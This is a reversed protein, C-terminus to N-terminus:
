RPPRLVFSGREGVRLPCLRIRVGATPGGDPRHTCAGTALSFRWRHWPCVVEEGALTGEFLPGLLHPCFSSAAVVRPGLTYLAFSGWPTNLPTSRRAALEGPRVGSDFEEETM